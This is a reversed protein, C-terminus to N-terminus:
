AAPDPDGSGRENMRSLIQQYLHGAPPADPQPGTESVADTPPPAPAHVVEATAAAVSPPAAVTDARAAAPPEVPSAPRAAPPTPEAVPAAIAAPLDLVRELLADIREQSRHWQAQLDDIRRELGRLARTFDEDIKGVWQDYTQLSRAVDKEIQETRTAQEDRVTQIMAQQRDTRAETARYLEVGIRVRKEAQDKVRNLAELQERSSMPRRPLGPLVTTHSRTPIPRPAIQTM